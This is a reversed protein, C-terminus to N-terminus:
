VSRKWLGPFHSFLLCDVVIVQHTDTFVLSDYLHLFLFFDVNKKPDSSPQTHNKWDTKDEQQLIQTFARQVKQRIDPQQKQKKALVM